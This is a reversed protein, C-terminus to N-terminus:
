FQDVGGTLIEDVRSMFPDKPVKCRLLRITAKVKGGKITLVLARYTIWRSYGSLADPVFM